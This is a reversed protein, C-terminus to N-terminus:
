NQTFTYHEKCFSIPLQKWIKIINLIYFDAETNTVNKSRVNKFNEFNYRINKNADSWRAAGQTIQQLSIKFIM